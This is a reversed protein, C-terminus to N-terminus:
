YIEKIKKSTAKMVTVTLIYVTLSLGMVWYPAVAFLISSLFVRYLISSVTLGLGVFFKVPRDSRLKEDNYYMSTVTLSLFSSLLSVFSLLGFFWQSSGVKDELFLNGIDDILM